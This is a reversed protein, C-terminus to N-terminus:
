AERDQFRAGALSGKNQYAQVAGRARGTGALEGALADRRQEMLKRDADDRAAVGSALDTLREIQGSLRDRQEPKAEALVADWVARVPALERAIGGISEIVSQREALLRLLEDTHEGDVLDHQRKSLADLRVFLAEQEDLLRHLCGFDVRSASTESQSPTM